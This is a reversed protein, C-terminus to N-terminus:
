MEKTSIGIGILRVLGTSEVIRFRYKAALYRREWQREYQQSLPMSITQEDDSDADIEFRMSGLSRGEIDFAEMEIVGKGTAQITLAHTMKDNHMSGHWLFPLIIEADPYVDGEENEIDLIEYVGGSTGLMLKGNLFAGCRANLFDGTSFTAGSDNQANLALTLRKCLTGGPQPFFVHYQGTDQDFAASILSPDSVSRVLQRYLIDVKDSLTASDVIIGNERSRRITHVGSRSCFLLDTGASCITAHSICGVRINVNDDLQWQDIDPDIVYILTRDAAFIALRNQEYAALGTIQDATGLQNAVDITGARLVNEDTPDEDGYFKDFNDVRSLHVETEFGPIGAVALRRQVSAVFSPRILRMAASNTERYIAGDYIQLVANRAAFVVNRNFVTSSVTTGSPYASTLVHGLSSRLHIGDGDEEAFVPTDHALFAIHHVPLGGVVHKAGADRVIQGRWDCTANNLAILHQNRGTELAREDRSSDLGMFTEYAHTKTKLQSPSRTSM